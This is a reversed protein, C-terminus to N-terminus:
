IITKKNEQMSRIEDIIQQDPKLDIPNMGDGVRKDLRGYVWAQCFLKETFEPQISKKDNGQEWGMKYFMLLHKDSVPKEAPFERVQLEPAWEDMNGGHRDSYGLEKSLHTGLQKVFCPVKARRCQEIIDTIWSIDCRRYGFKVYKDEPESGHGSEGGVIVWDIKPEIANGTKIVNLLLDVKELLPEASIFRVAAPTDILQWIRENASKQNEVSVGLWVNPYGDPGWDEPLCQKMREPRKTLIQWTLHPTKRIIDWADNRWEDAEEIFFDSYSCTFVKISERWKLAASFTADTSRIVERGDKNWRAKDRYMYCYKCGPSVKECGHWFNVTNGTWQINSDKGM